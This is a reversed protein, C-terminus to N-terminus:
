VMGAKRLAQYAKIVRQLKHEGSRDGANADPHTRRVLETYRARIKPGDANDDLDLDALANRELKGLRRGEPEPAKSNTGGGGFLNYPDRYGQGRAFKAGFAAAERSMRSAKMDWTPRGGTFLEDQQRREDPETIQRHLPEASRRRASANAGVEGRLRPSTFLSRPAAQTLM